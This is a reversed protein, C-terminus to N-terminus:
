SVPRGLNSRAQWRAPPGRAGSKRQVAPESLAAADAAITTRFKALVDPRDQYYTIKRFGEAECQTCYMSSSRYLGELATNEEPCIETVIQIQHQGQLGFITLSRASLEYENSSLMRGDVAVSLLTLEEGMLELANADDDQRRVRLTSSVTTKGDRIDFRLDTQETTYAPRQYDALYVAKAPAEASATSTQDSM